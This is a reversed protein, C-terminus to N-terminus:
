EGDVLSSYMLYEDVMSEELYNDIFEDSFAVTGQTSNENFSDSVYVALSFLVALLTVSAAAGIFMRRKFYLPRAVKHGVFTVDPICGEKPILEMINSKLTDFYGDPVKFPTKDTKLKLRVDKMNVNSM